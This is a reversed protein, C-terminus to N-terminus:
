FRYRWLTRKCERERRGTMQTLTIEVVGCGEVQEAPIDEAKPRFARNFANLTTAREDLDDIIRATGTCIVSDSDIHCDGGQAHPRVSEAQRAVTFSVNPNARICDLKRGELACHFLVKGDHYSYNLPVVYPRGDSDALGLYGLEEERLFTEMEERSEIFEHEHM